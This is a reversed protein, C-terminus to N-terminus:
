GGLLLRTGWSLVVRSLGRRVQRDPPARPAPPGPSAQRGLDDQMEPSAVSARPAPCAWDRPAGTERPARRARHEPTGPRGRPAKSATVRHPLEPRRESCTSVQAAAGDLGGERQGSSRAPSVSGLVTPVRLRRWDRESWARSLRHLNRACPVGHSVTGPSVRSQTRRRKGHREGRCGRGAGPVQM